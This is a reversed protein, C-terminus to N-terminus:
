EGSREAEDREERTEPVGEGWSMAVPPELSPGQEQEAHFVREVFDELAAECRAIAQM